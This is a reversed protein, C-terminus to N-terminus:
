EREMANPQPANLPLTVTFTSGVGIESVVTLDGGLLRALERSVSLGLGTGERSRSHSQDVQVFPEFIRGLDNAEIGPGTDTIRLVAKAEQPVAAIEVTITGSDTFKAANGLLNILIQRLKVEDTTMMIPASPLQRRISLGRQAVLPEVAVIAEEVLAVGNIESLRPQERGAEIRAFTLIEGVIGLLHNAVSKIRLLPAKQNEAVDGYLGSSLLDAYGAISGIPTRLEHSMAALFDSKSRNAAQAAEMAARLDRERAVRETVDQIIAVAGDVGGHETFLPLIRVSQQMRAFGEHGAPPDIDLLYGHLQHSFVVTSGAVAREFAARSAAPLNPAVDMLSRGIVDSARQGTASELWPNWSAVILQADVGLVGADLVNGIEHLLGANVGGLRLDGSTM